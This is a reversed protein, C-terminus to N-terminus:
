DTENNTRRAKYWGLLFRRIESTKYNNSDKDFKRIAIPHRVFLLVSSNYDETLVRCEAGCYKVFGKNNKPLTEFEEKSVQFAPCVANYDCNVNVGSGSVYGDYRVYAASSTYSGPSRLWWNNYGDDYKTIKMKAFPKDKVYICFEYASLLFIKDEM